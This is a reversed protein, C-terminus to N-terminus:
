CVMLGASYGTIAAALGIHLGADLKMVQGPIERSRGALILASRGALEMLVLLAAPLALPNFRVAARLDGHMLAATARTMGCLPCPRGFASEFSCAPLLGPRLANVASLAPGLVLFYLSLALILINTRLYSRSANNGAKPRSSM